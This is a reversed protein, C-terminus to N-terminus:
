LAQDHVHYVNRAKIEKAVARKPVAFESPPRKPDSNGEPQVGGWGM